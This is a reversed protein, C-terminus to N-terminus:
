GSSTASGSASGGGGLAGLLTGLQSLDVPTVDSPTSIDDGSPDFTLAIPLHAGAPAEGPKAFQVVDLSLEALKGDKVWADVTITRNPVDGPKVQQGLAAGGPVSSSLSGVFDTALQRTNGSLVLHDGKDDTGKKTVTVDKNIINKLDNILKQSQAQSPSQNANVGFQSALGKAADGNISVWNGAVFAQVFKPLQAARAKVEAYTKPQHALTLIGKLDGQLYLNGSIVRIEAYTKGNDVGRFSVNAAKSDGGKVESLKKGNNTKTEIVLSAGAIAQADADSLTTPNKGSKAFAQLDSATTELKFAVTLVDSDSLNSISASLEGKPDKPTSSSSGGGCGALVLVAGTAAVASFTSLGRRM